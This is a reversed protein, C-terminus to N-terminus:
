LTDFCEAIALAVPPAGPWFFNCVMGDNELCGLFFVPRVRDLKELYALYDLYVMPSYKMM